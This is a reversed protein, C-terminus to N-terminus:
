NGCNTCVGNTGADNHTGYYAVYGTGTVKCATAAPATGTGVNDLNIQGGTVNYYYKTGNDDIEITLEQINDAAHDILFNTYANKAQQDRASDNADNIITGFTPILVASLIAIVAIVIVLEVITFGKKNTKKM